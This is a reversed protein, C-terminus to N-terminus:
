RLVGRAVKLLRVTMPPIAAIRLPQWVGRADVEVALGSGGLLLDRTARRGAPFAGDGAMIAVDRAESAGVNAIVVIVDNGERRAYASVAHHSTTLGVLEGVALAPETARLHILRRYHQLLSGRDADQVAVNAVLSDDQMPQWPTGTTFGAHRPGRTWGMPTRIREDPKAGTMGLEEGYYVFPLGPMTLLLTAAVRARAVSGGLETLTRPQDHNRLFPAWRQAPVERQLRLAPALLGRASGARVAAIISDAVEFAFYADLQDPYYPLLAGTSDYVEGITLAEPKVSRVHRAYERLVDHTAPVDDLKEGAEVLYKVADLRFGDVDMETLWFTAVRKMEELVAPHGYNWDPMGHWFFGYFYEDRVSSKHWNEGGWANRPGPRTAWRFWDRWTSASDRMASQFFPHESSVHNIVMDVLVRIGRRHAERVLRKFDDNTGYDRDVRYYDAVDYGHYSPSEAIPMLWICAAGLDRTSRPNGDNIYDLRAILGRLDGIGDGDSDQFSRVFVEYCTAGRTWQPLQASVTSTALLAGMVLLAICPTRVALRDRM